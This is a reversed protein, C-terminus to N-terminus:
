HTHAYTEAHVTLALYSQNEIPDIVLSFVDSGNGTRKRPFINCFVALLFSAILLVIGAFHNKFATLAARIGARISGMSICNARLRPTKNGAPSAKNLSLFM